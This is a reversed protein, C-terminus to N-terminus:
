ASRRAPQGQTASNLGSAGASDPTTTVKDNGRKKVAGGTKGGTTSDQKTRAAQSQVRQKGKRNTSTGVVEDVEMDETDTILGEKGEPANSLESADGEDGDPDFVPESYPPPRSADHKSPTAALVARPDIPLGNSNMDELASMMKQVAPALRSRQSKSLARRLDQIKAFVSPSIPLSDQSRSPTNSGKPSVPIRPASVMSTAKSVSRTTATATATSNITIYTSQAPSSPTFLSVPAPDPEIDMASPRKPTGSLDPPLSFPSPDVENDCAGTIDLSMDNVDKALAAVDGLRATPSIAPAHRNRTPSACTGTPRGTTANIIADTAGNSTPSGPTDAHKYEQPNPNRPVSKPIGPARDSQQPLFDQHEPERNTSEQHPAPEQHKFEQHTPEQHEPEQHESEQREFEQHESEQKEAKPKKPRARSKFGNTTNRLVKSAILKLPWNGFMKYPGFEPLALLVQEVAADILDDVMQKTSTQSMDIGPTHELAYKTIDRVVDYDKDSLGLETRIQSVKTHSGKLSAPKLGIFKLDITRGGSRLQVLQRQLTKSETITLKRLIPIKPRPQPPNTGDVDQVALSGTSPRNSRSGALPGNSVNLRVARSSTTSRSPATSQATTSQTTALPQTASTPQGSNVSDTSNGSPTTTAAQRTTSAPVSLGGRTAATSQITPLSENSLERQVSAARQAPTARQIPLAHSVPQAREVPAVMPQTRATPRAPIASQVSTALQTLTTPTTSAVSDIPAAPDTSATTDGTVSIGKVGRAALIALLENTSLHDM